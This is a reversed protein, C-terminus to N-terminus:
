PEELVTVAAVDARSLFPRRMSTREGYGFEGSYRQGSTMPVKSASTGDPNWSFFGRPM